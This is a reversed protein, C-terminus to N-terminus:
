KSTCVLSLLHVWLANDCGIENMQKSYCIETDCMKFSQTYTATSQSYLDVYLADCAPRVM